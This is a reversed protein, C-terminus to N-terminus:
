GITGQVRVAFKFLGLPYIGRRRFGLRFLTLSAAKLGHSTPM